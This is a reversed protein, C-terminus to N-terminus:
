VEMVGYVHRVMLDAGLSADSVNSHSLVGNVFWEDRADYVTSVMPAGEWNDWGATGAGGVGNTGDTIPGFGVATLVRGLIDHDDTYFQNGTEVAYGGTTDDIDENGAVDEAVQREPSTSVELNMRVTGDATQTSKIYATVRHEAWLLVAVEDISLNLEDDLDYLQHGEFSGESGFTVGTGGSVDSAPVVFPTYGNIQTIFDFDGVDPGELFQGTEPDRHVM